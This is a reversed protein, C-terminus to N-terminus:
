NIRSLSLNNILTKHHRSSSMVTFIISIDLKDILSYSQLESERIRQKNNAGCLIKM